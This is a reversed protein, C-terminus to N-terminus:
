ILRNIVECSSLYTIPKVTGITLALKPGYLLRQYLDEYKLKYMIWGGAHNGNNNIKTTLLQFNTIFDKPSHAVRNCWAAPIIIMCCIGIQLLWAIWLCVREILQPNELLNRRIFYINVPINTLLFAFLIKGFLTLCSCLLLYTTQNHENLQFHFIPLHRLPICNILHLRKRITLHLKQQHLQCNLHFINKYHHIIKLIPKEIEILHFRCVITTFIACYVFFLAYRALRIMSYYFMFLDFLCWVHSYWRFPTCDFTFIHM